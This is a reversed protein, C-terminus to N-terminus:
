MGHICSYFIELKSEFRHIMRQKELFKRIIKKSRRECADKMIQTGIAFRNHFWRKHDRIKVTPGLRKSERKYWMFVSLCIFMASEM